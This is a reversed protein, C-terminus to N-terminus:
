ARKTKKIVPHEKAGVKGGKPMKSLVQKAAKQANSPLLKFGVLKEAKLGKGSSRAVEALFPAAKSLLCTQKTPTEGKAGGTTFAVCLAGTTISEGSFKCKSRSDEAVGLTLRSLFASPTQYTMCKRGVRWIEFGVRPSGKSINEGSFACKSRDTKALEVTANAM